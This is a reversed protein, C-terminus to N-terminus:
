GNMVIVIVGSMILVVPIASEEQLARIHWIFLISSGQMIGRSVVALVGADTATGM